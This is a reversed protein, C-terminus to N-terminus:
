SSEAVGLVELAADMTKVIQVSQQADEPQFYRKAGDAEVPHFMTLGGIILPGLKLHQTEKVVVVVVIVGCDSPVKLGWV